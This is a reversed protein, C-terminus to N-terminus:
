QICEQNINFSNMLVTVRKVMEITLRKSYTTFQSESQICRVRKNVFSVANNTSLVHLDATCTSLDVHLEQKIWDIM